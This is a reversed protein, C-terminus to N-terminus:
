IPDGDHLALSNMLNPMIDQMTFQEFVKDDDEALAQLASTVMKHTNLSLPMNLAESLQKSVNNKNLDERASPAIRAL